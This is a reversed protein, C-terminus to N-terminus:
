KKGQLRDIQNNQRADAAEAVANAIIAGEKVESVRIKALHEAKEKNIRALMEAARVRQGEPSAWFAEERAIREAEKQAAEEEEAKRKAYPTQNYALVAAKVTLKGTVVLAKGLGNLLKGM